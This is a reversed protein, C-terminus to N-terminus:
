KNKKKLKVTMILWQVLYYIAIHGLTRTNNEMISVVDSQEIPLDSIIWVVNFIVLLIAYFINEIKYLKIWENKQLPRKYLYLRLVLPPILVYVGFFILWVIIYITGIAGMLATLFMSLLMADM